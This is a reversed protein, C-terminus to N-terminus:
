QLTTIWTRTWEVTEVDMGVLPSGLIVIDSIVGENWKKLALACQLEMDAISIPKGDGFDWMYCGLAIRKDTALEHVRTLREELLVLEKARWTWLNIVDCVDLYDKLHPIELQHGYLVIWLELGAAHLHDAFERITALDDRGNGFFDDMIGGQLHLLPQKLEIVHKLDSETNNRKSGADGIISWVVKDMGSFQKAYDKFPPKPDDGFIVMIANKIGMYAVAEVPTLSSEGPINWRNNYSGIPHCWLWLHEFLKKKM